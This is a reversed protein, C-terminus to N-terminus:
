KILELFTELDKESVPREDTDFIAVAGGAEGLETIGHIEQAVLFKTTETSPRGRERLFSLHRDIEQPLANLVEERTEGRTFCGPLEAVHAYWWREGHEVNVSWPKVDFV